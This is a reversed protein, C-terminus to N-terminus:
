IAKNVPILLMERALELRNFNGVSFSSAQLYYKGEPYPSQDKQLPISMEVPFRGGFHAFGIQSYLKMEGRDGKAPIVREDSIVNDKFVEIILGNTNM